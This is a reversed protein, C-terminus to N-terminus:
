KHTKFANWFLCRNNGQLDSIYQRGTINVVSVFSKNTRRRVCINIIIIIIIFM